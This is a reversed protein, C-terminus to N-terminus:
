NVRFGQRIITQCLKVTEHTEKRCRSIQDILDDNKDETKAKFFNMLMRDRNDNNRCIHDLKEIVVMLMKSIDGNEFEKAFKEESSNPTNCPITNDPEGLRCRAEKISVKEEKLLQIISKFLDIHHQRYTRHGGRTREVKLLVPFQQEYYRLTHPALGTIRSVETVSFTDAM